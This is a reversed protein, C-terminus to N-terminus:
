SVQEREKGCPISFVEREAPPQCQWVGPYALLGYVLSKAPEVLILKCGHLKSNDM